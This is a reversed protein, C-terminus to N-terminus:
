LLNKLKLSYLTGCLYDIWYEGYNYQQYKHHLLHHDGVIWIGRKDHRLMGRINLFVLIIILDIMNYKYVLFPIFTGISQFISEFSHGLYTDLFEPEIKSHHLKHYKYLYPTHLLVHSTYFWIDYSLISLLITFM